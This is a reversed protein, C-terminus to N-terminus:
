PAFNSENLYKQLEPHPPVGEEEWMRRAMILLRRSPRKRRWSWDIGARRLDEILQEKIENTHASIGVFWELPPPPQYGDRFVYWMRHIALEEKGGWDTAVFVHAGCVPCGEETNALFQAHKVMWGHWITGCGICRVAM